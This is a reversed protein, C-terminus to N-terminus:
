LHPHAPIQQTVPIGTRLDALYDPRPHDGVAVEVVRVEPAYPDLSAVLRGSPDAVGSGGCFVFNSERGVRNVYVHPLRNELARVQLFLAHDDAYPDMNAAITVLLEAGATAVARAPEPFEVDYCIIPAVKVGALMTVLYSDGISFFRSENGFLHVKQYGGAIEGREDICLATNAVGHTTQEAVGIVVATEHHRAADRLPGVPSAPDSLTIANTGQLSGSLFVEPFVALSVTPNEELLAVASSVNGPLDDPRSELQALLVSVSRLVSVSGSVM